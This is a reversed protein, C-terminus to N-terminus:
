MFACSRHERLVWGFMRGKDAGAALAEHIPAFDHGAGPAIVARDATVTCDGM